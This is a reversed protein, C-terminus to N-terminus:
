PSEGATVEVTVMRANVTGMEIADSTLSTLGVTFSTGNTILLGKTTIFDHNGLIPYYSAGPGLYMQIEDVNHSGDNVNIIFGKGVANISWNFGLSVIYNDMGEEPTFDILDESTFIGINQAFEYKLKQEFSQQMLWQLEPIGKNNFV